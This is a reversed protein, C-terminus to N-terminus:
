LMVLLGLNKVKLIILMKIVMNGKLNEIIKFYKIAEKVEDELVISGIAGSPPITGDNKHADDTYGSPKSGYLVVTAMQDMM